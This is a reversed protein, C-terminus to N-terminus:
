GLVAAASKKMVRSPAQLSNECFVGGRGDGVIAMYAKTVKALFRDKDIGRFSRTAVDRRRRDVQVATWGKEAGEQDVSSWVHALATILFGGSGCAPDIILEGPKPDLIDVMMQVVNRPTFFQGESGRLAPGIFVEFASGIADREAETLCYNQLERVVYSLSAHDLSIEDSEDLVDRYESKVEAFLSVIRQHVDAPAENIGFRFRVSDDPATNIEDYLKCFLVNIIEQALQEDRTIGTANGALYHRLDNFVVKLNSPPKLDKRAYNGIDELRQGFRPINPLDHYTATGDGHLVKRLYVHDKGNFWVGIAAASRDMYRHLQDIGDKRKPKKCEVVMLLDSERQEPTRFVAIDVPWAGRTDSPRKRIQFQPRTRIRDHPYGYDEVLRRSFVQVAEVEEPGSRVPQRSIFDRIYGPELTSDAPQGESNRQGPM